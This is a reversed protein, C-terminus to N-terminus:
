KFSILGLGWQEQFILWTGSLDWCLILIYVCHMSLLNQTCATFVLPCLFFFLNSSCLSVLNTETLKAVKLSFLANRTPRKESSQCHFPKPKRQFGSEKFWIIVFQNETHWQLRELYKNCYSKTIKLQYFTMTFGSNTAGSHLLLQRLVRDQSPRCCYKKGCYSYWINFLSNHYKRYM